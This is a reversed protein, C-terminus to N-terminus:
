FFYPNEKADLRAQLRCLKEVLKDHDCKLLDGLYRNYLEEETRHVRYEEIDEKLRKIEADKAEIEENKKDIEDELEKIGDDRWKIGEKLKEIEKDSIEIKDQLRKIGDSRWEIGSNLRDIERNKTKIETELECRKNYNVENDKANKLATENWFKENEVTQKYESRKIWM